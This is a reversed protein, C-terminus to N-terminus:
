KYKAKAILLAIRNTVGDWEEGNWIWDDILRQLLPDIPKEIVPTNYLTGDDEFHCTEKPKM